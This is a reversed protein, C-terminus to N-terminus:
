SVIVKMTGGRGERHWFGSASTSEIAPCSLVIRLEMMSKETSSLKPIPTDAESSLRRRSSSSSREYTRVDDGAATLSVLGREDM